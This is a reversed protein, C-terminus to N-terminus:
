RLYSSPATGLARRFMSIFASPTSYGSELAAHTVKAGEALLRMGQMLRLQQRWKGFTMGIEQQFLREISRKNAGSVRCLQALTRSDCPDRLFIEAIRVLRVFPPTAIPGDPGSGTSSSHDCDPARAVARQKEVQAIYMRLTSVRQALRSRQDRLLRASARTGATTESVADAYGGFWVDHCHAASRCSDVGCPTSTCGMNRRSDTGDLGLALSQWNQTSEILHCDIDCIRWGLIKPGVAFQHILIM